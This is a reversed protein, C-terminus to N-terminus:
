ENTKGEDRLITALIRGHYDANEVIDSVDSETLYSEIVKATEDKNLVSENPRSNWTKVVRSQDKSVGSHSGCGGCGVTWFGYENEYLDPEVNRPGCFPCPKLQIM